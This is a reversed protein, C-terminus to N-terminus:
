EARVRVGVRVKVGVRVIVGVRVRVTGVARVMVMVMFWVLYTMVRIKVPYLLALVSLAVRSLVVCSEFKQFLLKKFNPVSRFLFHRTM